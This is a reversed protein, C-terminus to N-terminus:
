QWYETLGRLLIVLAVGAAAPLLRELGAGSLVLGLLWGLLALRAVGILSSLLGVAVAAAIRGRVGRTFVWLRSNFYM